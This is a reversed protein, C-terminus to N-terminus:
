TGRTDDAKPRSDCIVHGAVDLVLWKLPGDYEGGLLEAGRWVTWGAARNCHVDVAYPLDFLRTRPRESTTIHLAHYSPAENM